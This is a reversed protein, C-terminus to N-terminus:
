NQAVLCCEESIAAFNLNAGIEIPRSIDGGGIPCAVAHVGNPKQRHREAGFAERGCGILHHFVTKRAAVTGCSDFANFM